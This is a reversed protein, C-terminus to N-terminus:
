FDAGYDNEMAFNTALQKKMVSMVKAAVMSTTRKGTPSLAAAASPTPSLGTGGADGRFYHFFYTPL